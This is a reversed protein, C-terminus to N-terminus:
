KELVEESSAKRMRDWLVAPVTPAKGTNKGPKPYVRLFRVPIQNVPAMAPSVDEQAKNTGASPEKLALVEAYSRGKGEKDKKGKSAERLSFNAMRVEVILQEWGQGYRGELILINGCRRRGDFEEVTLFYGNRNSRRQV